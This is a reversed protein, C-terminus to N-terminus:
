SIPDDLGVKGDQVLLMVGVATFQKSISGVPYITEATAPVSLEVNALGYGQSKVVKGDRVVAVSLGPIHRNAMESRLYDDVKDAQAAGALIEMM